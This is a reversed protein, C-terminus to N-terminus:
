ANAPPEEAIYLAVESHDTLEKENATYHVQVIIDSGAKILKARGPGWPSPLYGPEYGALFQQADFISERDLPAPCDARSPVFLVGPPYSRLYSSKPARAYVNIHHVM